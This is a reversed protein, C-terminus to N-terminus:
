RVRDCQDGHERELQELQPAIEEPLRGLRGMGTDIKLHFQYDDRGARRAARAVAEAEAVNSVTQIVGRAVSENLAGVDHELVSLCLIPSNIGSNKLAIAEDATAVALGALRDAGELARAVEILGHGYARKKIAPYFEIPPAFRAVYRDWNRRLASLDIECWTQPPLM